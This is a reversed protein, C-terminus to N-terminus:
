ARPSGDIAASTPAADQDIILRRHEVMICRDQAVRIGVSRLRAASPGHYIGLQMWVTKPLPSMALIEDVHGAVHDSARFLIVIDVAPADPPIDSLSAYAPQGLVNELKPNIPIITYGHELMYKPVRYADEGEGDKIGVVALTQRGSLITTLEADHLM